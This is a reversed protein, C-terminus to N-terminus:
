ALRPRRLLGLAALAGLLMWGAAPLPIVAVTFRIDPVRNAVILSPDSALATVPIGFGSILALSCCRPPTYLSGFDAFNYATLVRNVVTWSNRDNGIYTGLGFGDTNGTIVVSTAAQPNPANDVLGFVSGTVTGTVPGSEPTWTNIFTFDFRLTAASAAAPLLAVLIIAFLRLM